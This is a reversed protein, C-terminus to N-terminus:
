IVYIGILATFSAFLFGISAVRYRRKITSNLGSLYGQFEQIEQDVSDLDEGSAEAREDSRRSVFSRPPINSYRWFTVALYFFGLGLLTWVWQEM